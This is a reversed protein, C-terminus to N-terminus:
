PARVGLPASPRSGGEPAPHRRTAILALSACLSWAFLSFWLADGGFGVAFGFPLGGWYGVLERLYQLLRGRRVHDVGLGLATVVLLVTLPIDSISGPVDRGKLVSWLAGIGFTCVALIAPRRWAGLLFSSSSRPPSADHAALAEGWAAASIGVEGAIVAARDRDIFQDRSQELELAHALVRDFDAKSLRTDPM